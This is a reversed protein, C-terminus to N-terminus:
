VCICIYMCMNHILLYITLMHKYICILIDIYIYMYICLYVEMTPCKTISECFEKSYLGNFQKQWELLVGINNADIKEVYM